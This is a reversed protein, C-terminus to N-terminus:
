FFICPSILIIFAIKLFRRGSVSIHSFGDYTRPVDGYCLEGVNILTAMLSIFGCLDTIM